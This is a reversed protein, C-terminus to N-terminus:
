IKYITEDDDLEYIDVDYKEFFDKLTVKDQHKMWSVSLNKDYVNICFFKKAGFGERNEMQETIMERGGNNFILSM